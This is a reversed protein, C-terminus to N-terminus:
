PTIRQFCALYLSHFLPMRAINKTLHFGQAAFPKELTSITATKSKPRKRPPLFKRKTSRKLSGPSFPSLYSIFVFNESVRCLEAILASRDSEESLHHFFRLCLTGDFSRAEFPMNSVDGETM